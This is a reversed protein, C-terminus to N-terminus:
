RRCAPCIGRRTAMGYSQTFTGLHKMSKQSAIDPTQAIAQAKRKLAASLNSQKDGTMLSDIAQYGAEVRRSTDPAYNLQVPAMSALELPAAVNGMGEPPSIAM